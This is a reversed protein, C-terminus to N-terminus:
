ILCGYEWLYGLNIMGLEFIHFSGFDLFKSYQYSAMLPFNWVVLSQKM